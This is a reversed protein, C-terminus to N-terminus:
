VLHLMLSVIAVYVSHGMLNKVDFCLNHKLILLMHQLAVKTKIDVFGLSCGSTGGQLMKSRSIKEKNVQARARSSPGFLHM